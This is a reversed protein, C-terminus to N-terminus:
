PRCKGGSHVSSFRRFEPASKRRTTPCIRCATTENRSANDRAVRNASSIRRRYDGPTRRAVPGGIVSERMSIRQIAVREVGAASATARRSTRAAARSIPTEARLTRRRASQPLIGAGSRSVPPSIRQRRESRSSHIAAPHGLQRRGPAPLPARRHGRDCRAGAPQGITQGTPINSM